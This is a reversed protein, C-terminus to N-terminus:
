SKELLWCRGRHGGGQAAFLPPMELACREFAEGCRPHFACGSPRSWLDPVVGPIADLRAKREGAGPRSHLLGRTYPHAPSGLVDESAGEEVIRGAYMVAVEDAVHAVIGLDHTILLLASGSSDILSRMLGLIQKQVTVDLATTPEDAVLLVPDCALAMGIMVRQRMGGSMQHPFDRVRQEPAPIGVKGLMAVAAEEAQRASLGRHRRLGETMQEGVRMVPNLSTMPDQFVMGARNGRIRRLEKEPLALLDEGDFFVSGSLIRSPPSPLLRLLSLATVSKGCGSEGVLCLTKGRELHFSVGDVALGQERSGGGRSFAVRLDRVDLLPTGPLSTGPLPTGCLPMGPTNERRAARNKEAM